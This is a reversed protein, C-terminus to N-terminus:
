VEGKKFASLTEEVLVPNIRYVIDEVLMVRVDASFSQRRPELMPLARRISEALKEYRDKMGKLLDCNQNVVELLSKSGSVLFPAFAIGALKGTPSEVAIKSAAFYETFSARYSDTMNTVGALIATGSARLALLARWDGGHYNWIEACIQKWYVALWDERDLWTDVNRTPRIDALADLNQGLGIALMTKYLSDKFAGDETDVGVSPTKFIEANDERYKRTFESVEGGIRSEHEECKPVRVQFAKLDGDQSVVCEGTRLLSLDAIQADELGMTGGVNERDDVALLRHVIKAGTGKVINPSVRSPLQDVVMVGEGYARIESLMDVFASVAKGRPNSAEMNASTDPINALLRHAEEIVLVHRLAQTPNNSFTAKRWEYLRSVILGMLFAKEDDDGLNELEIIVPREFIDKSPLSRPTELMTGKAGVLLSSLRAKLAAEINMQQEQYYGKRRVVETVKWYLDRLTPLYDRFDEHYVDIFRNESRGLDWGRERYVELIAEELIYPMSAYMPFSANFTAKLRDIHTLVHVRNADTDMGPEFDFPNLRLPCTATRDIGASIVLLDDRFEDMTALARYEAKAPEIVLFPVHENKWLQRLLHHISNTKGSGTLGFVALHKTLNAQLMRYSQSTENGKDLIRGLTLTKALSGLGVGLNIGFAPRRSVSVGEVDQTAVPTAIALERTNVPTAPGNFLIGLPHNQFSVPWPRGDEASKPKTAFATRLYVNQFRRLTDRFDTPVKIARPPEYTSDMGAFLSNVVGIGQRYTDSDAACFYHGLNWMGLATGEQLRKEYARLVEEAYEAKRNLLEQGVTTTKTWTLGFSGFGGIATQTSHAWNQTDASGKTHSTTTTVGETHHAGESHGAKGSIADGIGKTASGFLQGISAGIATGIGPALFSGIVGGVIAGVGSIGAAVRQHTELLQQNTSTGDTITKAISRMDSISVSHGGGNTDGRGGMGFLGLMVTKGNSTAKSLDTKVLHHIDSELQQCAAIADRVADQPIPDAISLWTYTKGRMARILRELGQVFLQSEEDRKLSPIGTLVGFETCKSLEYSVASAEPTSLNVIRSGPFNARWVAGYGDLVGSTEPADAAFKCLGLYVCTRTVDGQVIFLLSHGQGRMATLASEVGPLHFKENADFAIEDLKFLRVNKQLHDKLSPAGDTEPSSLLIDSYEPVDLHRRELSYLLLEDFAPYCKRAIDARAKELAKLNKVAVDTM